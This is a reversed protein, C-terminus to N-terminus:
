EEGDIREFRFLSECAYMGSAIVEKSASAVDRMRVALRAYVEDQWDVSAERVAASLSRTVMQFGSIQKRLSDSMM